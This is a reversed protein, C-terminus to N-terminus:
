MVKMKPLDQIDVYGALTGDQELAPLDDIKHTEFVRLADVALADAAVSVPNRTM